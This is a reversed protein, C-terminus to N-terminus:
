MIHQASLPQLSKVSAKGALLLNSEVAAASAFAWSSACQAQFAVGPLVQPPPRLHRAPSRLPSANSIPAICSAATQVAGVKGAAAHNVSTPLTSTAPASGKALLRRNPEAPAAPSGAATMLVNAAFESDTMDSYANLGAQLAPCAPSPHLPATPQHHTSAPAARWRGAGLVWPSSVWYRLALKSNTAVIERLSALWYGYRAESGSGM